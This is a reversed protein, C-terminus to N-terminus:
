IGTAFQEVHVPYIRQGGRRLRSEAMAREIEPHRMAQVQRYNWQTPPSAPPRPRSTSSASGTRRPLVAGTGCNTRLQPIGRGAKMMKIDRGQSEMAAMFFRLPRGRWIPRDPWRISWNGKVEVIKAGDAAASRATSFLANGPSKAWTTIAWRMIRADLLVPHRLRLHPPSNPYHKKCSRRGDEAVGPTCFACPSLVVHRARRGDQYVLCTDVRYLGTRCLISLGRAALTLFRSANSGTAQCPKYNRVRKQDRCRLDRHRATFGSQLTAVAPIRHGLVVAASRVLPQIDNMWNSSPRRWTQAPDPDRGIARERNPKRPSNRPTECVVPGTLMPEILWGGSTAPLAQMISTRSASCLAKPRGIDPSSASAESTRDLRSLRRCSTTQAHRDRRLLRGALPSKRPSPRLRPMPRADSRMARSRGNLRYMPINNASRGAMITKTMGRRHDQGRWVRFRSRPLEDLIIRILPPTGEAGGSFRRM